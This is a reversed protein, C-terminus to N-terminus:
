VVYKDGIVSPVKIVVLTCDTSFHPKSTEGKEIVFVDGPCFYMDNVSMYGEILVNYEDAKKHYHEPWDEGARHKLIGVEFDKTRLISPLFDGIFWGRNFEDLKFRVM